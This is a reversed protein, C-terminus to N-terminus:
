FAELSTFNIDIKRRALTDQRVEYYKQLWALIEARARDRVEGVNGTLEVDFQFAIRRGRQVGEGKPTNLTAVAGVRLKSAEDNKSPIALRSLAQSDKYSSFKVGYAKVSSWYKIWDLTNEKFFKKRREQALGMIEAPSDGRELHWLVFSSLSGKAPRMPSTRLPM